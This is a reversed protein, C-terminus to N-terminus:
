AVARINRQPSFRGIINISDGDYHMLTSGGYKDAAEQAMAEATDAESPLFNLEIREFNEYYALRYM